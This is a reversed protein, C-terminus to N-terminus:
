IHILSLPVRKQYINDNGGTVWSFAEQLECTRLDVPAVYLNVAIPEEMKLRLKATNAGTADQYPPLAACGTFALSAALLAGSVPRSLTLNPEM